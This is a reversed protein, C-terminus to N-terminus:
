ETSVKSRAAEKSLILVSHSRENSEILEMKQKSYSTFRGVWETVGEQKNNFRLIFDLEGITLFETEIHNEDPFVAILKGKGNTEFQYMAQSSSVKWSGLLSARKNATEKIDFLAVQSSCSNAFLVAILLVLFPNKM